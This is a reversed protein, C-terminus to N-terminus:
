SPLRHLLKFSSLTVVNLTVPHQEDLQKCDVQVSSVTDEVSTCRLLIPFKPLEDVLLNSTVMVEAGMVVSSGQKLEKINWRIVRKLEDYVGGAVGPVIKVTKGIVTPPVAMAVTIDRLSGLNNLNSRIQVAVKCIELHNGTRAVKSQVLIPMFKKTVSRHYSALKFKGKIAKPLALTNYESPGYVITHNSEFQFNTDEPYDPDIIRISFPPNQASQSFVQAQTHTHTHMPMPAYLIFRTHSLSHRSSNLHSLCVIYRVRLYGVYQVCLVDM